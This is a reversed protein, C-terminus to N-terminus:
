KENSDGMKVHRKKYETGCEACEARGARKTEIWVQSGCRPCADGSGKGNAWLREPGAGIGTVPLIVERTKKPGGPTCFSCYLARREGKGIYVGHECRRM